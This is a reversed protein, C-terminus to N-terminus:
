QLRSVQIYDPHGDIALRFTRGWATSAVRATDGVRIFFAKAVVQQWVQGSALTIQLKNSQVEKLLIVKDLLAVEGKEDSVLKTQPQGFNEIKAAVPAEVTTAPPAQDSLPKSQQSHALGDYCTVRANIDSVAACKALELRLNDAQVITPLSWITAGPLCAIGSYITRRVNM